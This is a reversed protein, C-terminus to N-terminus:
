KKMGDVSKQADVKLKEGSKQANRILLDAKKNAEKLIDDAKVSSEQRLVKVAEKAAMEGIFGNKKGEALLTEAQKDTELNLFKVADSAKERILDANKVAENMLYKAQKDADDLIKQAAVSIEESVEKTIIEKASSGSSKGIKTSVEPKNFTGTINVDVPIKDPLTFNTGIVNVSAFLDEMVKNAESGLESRPILLTMEYGITKDLSTWGELEINIKGYNFKTPKVILKGEKVAYSAMFNKVKLDNLQEIKLMGALQNLSNLGHVSIEKTSINGDGNLTSYVPNLNGDLVTNLNLNASFLGSTNKTVPIYNRFLAFQNYSEPISMNKMNFSMSAVPNEPDITSFSGTVGMTGGVAKMSLNNIELKGNAMKMDGKVDKMELKDYILKDFSSSLSFNINSPIEVRSPEQETEGSTENSNTETNETTENLEPLLKDINLYNSNTTLNGTLTEGKFYYALYNEIKGKAHLDSEGIIADFNVLDLYAPSFNLQTSKISVPEVIADTKYTLDTAVVSGMALFDSYRENEISSLKGELSVDLILMGNLQDGEPVPYFDKLGSLDVKGRIKSSIEPDSVPTKMAFSGSVPNNGLVMKVNSIDVITNDIDGGSNSIKSAIEINRVSSPLGPYQFSGNDVDISIYFSPLQEDNYIGKVAGEVSFLGAAEVNEFDKSYVAPVLSLLDKFESGKSQFTLLMNLDDNITSITGDFGVFLSNLVLENRGLKYIGNKLDAEFNAKYVMSIDKMYNIGEYSFSIDSIRTNTKLIVNDQNLDGSFSHHINNLNLEMELEHDCYFIQGQEIKFNNISLTYPNSEGSPSSSNSVEEPLTIDYNAKGGKLVVVDVVPEIFKISEVEYSEGSFVSFLDIAVSITNVKLLTDNEFEEKGTISLNYISLNFDPFSRILSLDIDEFEINANIANNLETKTLNIIESKYIIPLIFLLAVVIIVLVGLIKLLTKM